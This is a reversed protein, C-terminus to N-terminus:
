YLFELTVIDGKRKIDYESESKMKELRKANQLSIKQSLQHFIHDVKNLNSFTFTHIFNQTFTLYILLRFLGNM